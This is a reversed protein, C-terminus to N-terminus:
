WNLNERPTLNSGLSHCRALHDGAAVNIVEAAIKITQYACPGIGDLVPLKDNATLDVRVKRAIGSKNIHLKTPKSTYLTKSAAAAASRKNVQRVSQTQASTLKEATRTGRLRRNLAAIDIETLTLGRPGHELDM